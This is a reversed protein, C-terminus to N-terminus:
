LCWEVDAGKSALRVDLEEKIESRDIKHMEVAQLNWEVRLPDSEHDRALKVMPVWDVSIVHDRKSFFINKGPCAAAVLRKLAKGARDLASQM